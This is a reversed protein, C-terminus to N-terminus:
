GIRAITLAQRIGRFHLWFGAAYDKCNLFKVNGKGTVHKQHSMDSSPLIEELRATRLGFFIPLNVEEVQGQKWAKFTERREEV